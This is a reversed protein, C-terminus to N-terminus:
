STSAASMASAGLVKGIFRTVSIHEVESRGDETIKGALYVFRGM